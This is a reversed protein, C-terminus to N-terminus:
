ATPAPAAPAAAPDPAPTAVPHAAPPPTQAAKAEAKLISFFIMQAGTLFAVLGGMLTAQGATAKEIGALYMACGLCILSVLLLALKDFSFM